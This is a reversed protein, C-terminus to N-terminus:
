EERFLIDAGVARETIRKMKERGLGLSGRFSPIEIIIPLTQSAYETIVGILHQALDETVFIIKFEESVKRLLSEAEERSEACLPQIGISKFAMGTEKDAIIAVEHESESM